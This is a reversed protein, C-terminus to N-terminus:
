FDNKLSFVILLAGFFWKKVGQRRVILLFIM